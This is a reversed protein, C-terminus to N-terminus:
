CVKKLGKSSFAINIFSLPLPESSSKRHESIKQRDSSVKDLTSILPILELLHARFPEIHKIDFFFFAEAKKPLGTLIDGQINKPDIPASGM